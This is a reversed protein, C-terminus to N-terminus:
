VKEGKKKCLIGTIGSFAAFGLCVAGGVYFLIPPLAQTKAYAISSPKDPLYLIEVTMGEYLGSAYYDLERTYTTNDVTYQVYVSIEEKDNADYEREIRVIEAKIKIGKRQFETSRASLLIGACLFIVGSILLLIILKAKSKKM